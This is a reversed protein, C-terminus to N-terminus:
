KKKDQPPYRPKFHKAVTFFSDPLPVHNNELTIAMVDEVESRPDNPHKEANNADDLRVIALNREFETMGLPMRDGPPTKTFLQDVKAALDTRGQDILGKEAGQVLLGLYEAQDRDAMKDFQRIEMAQLSAPFLVAASLFTAALSKVRNM